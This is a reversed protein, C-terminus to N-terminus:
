PVTAAPSSSSVLVQGAGKVVPNSLTITGQASAGAVVSNPSVQLSVNIGAPLPVTPQVALLGGAAGAPPVAPRAADNVAQSRPIGTLAGISGSQRGCSAVMALAGLLLPFATRRLFAPMPLSARALSLSAPMGGASRSPLIM